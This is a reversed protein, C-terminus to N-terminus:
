VSVVEPYRKIMAVGEAALGEGESALGALTGFGFRHVDRLMRSLCVLRGAILVVRGYGESSLKLIPAAVTGCEREITLGVAQYFVDLRWMVRPDPNAIIPIARRQEASLIFPALLETDPKQEWVGNTDHARMLTVLARVFPSALAAEDSQYTEQQMTDAM